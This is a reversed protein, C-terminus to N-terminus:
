LDNAYGLVDWRQDARDYLATFRIKKGAATAPLATVTSGYRWAGAGSTTLTLTAASAGTNKWEVVLVQQEDTGSPANTPIGLTRAVASSCRFHNSESADLAITAADTLTNVRVTNAKQYQQKGTFVNATLTAKENDLENLAAQVNTAALNGAPTSAVAAADAVGVRAWTPTTATLVWLSYDDLQLAVKKLDGSVFGTAGTRAAANAYEWNHVRHMEGLGIEVHEPM